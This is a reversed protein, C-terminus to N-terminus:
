KVGGSPKSLTRIYAALADIDRAKLLGGWSPMIPSLGHAGGGDKIVGKIQEDTIRAMFAPDAFKAPPTALMYSNFGDGNGTAGHCLACYYEYLTKGKREIFSLRTHIQPLLFGSKEGKTSLGQSAPPQSEGPIPLILLILVSVLLIPSLYKTM